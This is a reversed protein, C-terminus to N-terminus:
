LVLWQRLLLVFSCSRNAGCGVCACDIVEPSMDYYKSNLVWGEKLILNELLINKRASVNREGYFTSSNKARRSIYQQEELFSINKHSQHSFWYSLRARIWKAFIQFHRTKFGCYYSINYTKGPLTWDTDTVQTIVTQPACKLPGCVYLIYIYIYIYINHINTDTGDKPVSNLTSLFGM